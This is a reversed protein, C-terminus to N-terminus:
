DDPYLFQHLLNANWDTFYARVEVKLKSGLAQTTASWESGYTSSIARLFAFDQLQQEGRGLDVETALYKDILVRLSSQVVPEHRVNHQAVGLEQLADSLSLLSQFCQPSPGHVPYIPANTTLIRNM